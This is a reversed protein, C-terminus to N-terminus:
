LDSTPSIPSVVVRFGHFDFGFHPSVGYRAACRLWSRDAYYAGGRLSMRDNDTVSEVAERGDGAKYEYPQYRSRTWEWVNGSLDLVGYPSQEAPFAGVPSTRGIGTDKYNAREPNAQEDGWPFRRQPWDNAPL